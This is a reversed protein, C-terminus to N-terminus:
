SGERFAEADGIRYEVGSRGPVRFLLKRLQDSEASIRRRYVDTSVTQHFVDVRPKLALSGALAERPELGFHFRQDFVQKFGLRSSSFSLSDFVLESISAIM